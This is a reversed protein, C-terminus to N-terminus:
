LLTVQGSVQPNSESQSVLQIALVSCSAHHVVYNSVSGLILEGLGSRGRRGMLILDAKWTSAVACITRGPNGLIQSLETTVGAEEAKAAFSRLMELQQQEYASWRQAHHKFAEEYLVPSYDIASFIAIDPYDAELPTLVHLLLLRSGTAVALDLAQAFISSSTEPDDLAVLIKHFM